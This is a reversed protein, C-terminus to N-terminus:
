YAGRKSFYLSASLFLGFDSFQAIKVDRLEAVTCRVSFNVSRPFERALIERCHMGQGTAQESHPLQKVGVLKPNQPRIVGLHFSEMFKQGFDANWGRNM